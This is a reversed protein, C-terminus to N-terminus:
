GKRTKLKVFRCGRRVVKPEGVMRDESMSVNEVERGLRDTLGTYINVIGLPTEVHLRQGRKLVVRKMGGYWRGAM